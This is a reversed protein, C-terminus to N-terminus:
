YLIIRKNSMEMGHQIKNFNGGSLGILRNGISMFAVPENGPIADFCKQIINSQNNWGNHLSHCVLAFFEVDGVKKTLITGLRRESPYALEKWYKKAIVSAFGTNIVGETNIAFAIRKNNGFMIDGKRTEIIM